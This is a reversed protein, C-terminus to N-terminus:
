KKEWLEDAKRLSKIADDFHELEILAAGLANHAEPIEPDVEVAERYKEAAHAYHHQRFLAIAWNTLAKGRGKSQDKRWLEDAKRLQTVADDFHGLELLDAGLGSYADPYEPDIGLAERCKTAGEDFRKLRFLVKHWNYLAKKRDKSQCKRWLEDAKRFEEIAEDGTLEIGRALHANADNPDATM